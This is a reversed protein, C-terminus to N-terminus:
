APFHCSLHGAGQELVVPIRKRQMLIFEPEANLERAITLGLDRHIGGVVKSDAILAIPMATSSDVLIKLAPVAHAPTLWLLPAACVLTKLIGM